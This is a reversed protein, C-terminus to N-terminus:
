PSTDTGRSRSCVCTARRSTTTACRTASCPTSTLTPRSPALCAIGGRPPPTATSFRTPPLQLDTNLDKSCWAHSSQGAPPSSKLASGKVGHDVRWDTSTSVRGRKILENMGVEENTRKEEADLIAKVDRSDAGKGGKKGRKGKGGKGGKRGKRGSGPAKAGPRLFAKM